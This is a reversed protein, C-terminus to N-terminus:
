KAKKVAIRRKAIPNKKTPWKPNGGKTLVGVAILRKEAKAPSNKKRQERMKRRFDEVDEASITSYSPLNM